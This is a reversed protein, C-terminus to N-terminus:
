TCSDSNRIDSDWNRLSALCGNLKETHLAFLGLWLNHENPNEIDVKLLLELGFLHLEADSLLEDHVRLMKSSAVKSM